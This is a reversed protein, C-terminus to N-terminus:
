MRLVPRTQQRIQPLLQPTSLISIPQLLVESDLQRIKCTNMTRFHSIVRGANLAKQFDLNMLIDKSIDVMAMVVLMAIMDPESSMIYVGQQFQAQTYVRRERWREMLKFYQGDRALAVHSWANVSVTTSGSSVLQGGLQWATFTIQGNSIGLTYAANTGSNGFQAIKQTAVNPYIWADMSFDSIGPDFDSSTPMTLYNGSGDFYASSGGFVSQVNSQTSTGGATITKASPSSDTFTSGSGNGHLLFKTYSDNGGLFSTGTITINTGGVTLGMSPTINVVTMPITTSFSIVDPSYSTGLTNTAFALVYYTTGSALGSMTASFTGTVTSGDVIKTDAVTPTGTTNWCVGRATLTARGNSPVSATIVASNVTITAAPVVIDSVVPKTIIVTDCICRVSSGFAKNQYTADAYGPYFHMFYAYSTNSFQNSSWYYGNAGRVNLAGGTDLYGAAHLKLESAFVDAPTSWNRPNGDANFWENNTPLRWGAGLMLTCPDNAPLWDSNQSIGGTWATSPMRVSTYQYGQANNFQWYWGASPETADSVSAAQQDAGLNQTLWCKAAGSITSSISHYTVIKSVPAGNIGATHIITIPNCMKFSSVVPSYATGKANTAYGRVYYTPGEILGPIIETFSGISVGTSVTQDTIVPNGITNWCLGRSTIPFGGDSIIVGSGTATTATMISTPIVVDSVSLVVTDCLCRVSSGFAKNQYTADAYGPYFHMFYAYSTNSFQNSSWYYGNAGRVNLAGGTDLYGAAHLKLESAFVDAPTQWNRPSADANFWENYTPLRWGTGLLLRCPDNAPLWDSNQSIGGTWATAPTRVTTFQYGQPNNFQWYWGASPETADTVSSAQHDAGLNQTLWCKAAGSLISSVSGYTITKTVPAGNVGATHTLTFTTPCIKFSTVDPSYGTGKTNTAYGRVYYTPGQVLGTLIESFSGIGSGNTVKNDGIGPNGTTNWCLGRASLTAGGNSIVSASGVATNVTMSATPANVDSVTPVAIVITDRLCRVPFPYTKYMTNVVSNSSNIFIDNGNGATSQTSSWYYGASGRPNLTGNNYDLSSALHLKLVSAYADSSTNWYQPSGVVNTWESFTPLRWGLGLLNVCPDNVPLWDSNESITAIWTSAPTRTTGDNKYGQL